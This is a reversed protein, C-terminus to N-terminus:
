ENECEGNRYDCLNNCYFYDKNEAFDEERYIEDVVNKAWLLANNYVNKDFTVTDFQGKEKFYNWVLKTPYVGYEEYVAKSYLYLQKQYSEVKEICKKKIKGGKSYPFESSKHDLVIIENGSKLLLDIFGIFKRGDIEFRVEKEVGLVEYDNLELNIKKFYEAGLGYYKDYSATECILPVKEEFYEAYYELLRDKPLEENCYMELIEHCFSGFQAYMNGCKVRDEIYKLYWAKKCQAFLTLNSFSFVMDDLILDYKSM